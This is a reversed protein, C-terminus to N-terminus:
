RPLNTQTLAWAAIENAAFAYGASTLHNGDRLFLKDARRARFAPLLDLTAVEHAALFQIIDAHARNQEAQRYLFQEQPLVIVAFAIANQRCFDQMELIVERMHQWSPYGIKQDVYVPWYGRLRYAAAGILDRLRLVVRFRKLKDLWGANALQTQQQPLLGPQGYFYLNADWYDNFNFGYLIADPQYAPLVERMLILIQDANYGGIGCNWVEPARAGLRAELIQRVQNPYAAATNTAGTGQTVSDGVFLWRRIGPAKTPTADPMNFGLNNLRIAGEQFGPTLTYNLGPIDSRVVSGVGGGAALDAIQAREQLRLMIEAAVLILAGTLVALILSFGIRKIIPRTVHKV